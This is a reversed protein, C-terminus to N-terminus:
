GEPVKLACISVQVARDHTMILIDIILTIMIIATPHNIITITFIAMIARIAMIAIITTMDRIAFIAM